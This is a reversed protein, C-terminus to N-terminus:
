QSKEEDLNVIKFESVNQAWELLNKSFPDGKAALQRIKENQERLRKQM